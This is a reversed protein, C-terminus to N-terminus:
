DDDYDSPRAENGEFVDKLKGMREVPCCPTTAAQKQRNRGSPWGPARSGAGNTKRYPYSVYPYAVLFSNRFPRSLPHPTPAPTTLGNFKPTFYYCLKRTLYLRKVNNSM